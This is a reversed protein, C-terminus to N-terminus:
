TKDQSTDGANEKESEGSSEEEDKAAESAAAEEEEKEGIEEPSTEPKTEESVPEGGTEATAEAAAEATEPPAEPPVTPKPPAPVIGEEGVIIETIDVKQKEAEQRIQDIESEKVKKDLLITQFKYVREDIRFNREVEFTIGAPGAYDILIYYGVPKKKVDYALRKNGIRVVRIIHGSNKEVIDTYKSIISDIEEPQLDPDVLFLAEYRRLLM